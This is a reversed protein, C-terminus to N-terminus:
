LQHALGADACEIIKFNFGRQTTVTKTIAKSLTNSRQDKEQHLTVPQRLYVLYSSSSVYLQPCLNKLPQYFKIAQAHRLKNWNKAFYVIASKM